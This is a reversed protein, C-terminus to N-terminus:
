KNASLKHLESLLKEATVPLALIRVGTANYIANTIAAMSPNLAPEGIGKAGYPGEPEISEILLPTIKPVDLPGPIEYDLFSPNVLHGNEVVMKEMLTWGLGQVVGGEIQGETAMPNIARGVDHAAVFNVVTIEGTEPDVEVEAIHCGFPYAPSINGYKTVPDPLQTPPIYSGVAILPAGGRSTSAQNAVEKFLIYKEPSGKVFFKGNAAVIDDENAELMDAAVGALQRFAETAASLVGNGGITTGRTAFSGLGFPSVDTDVVAVEIQELSIGLKEAAIQAFATKQGQGMDSEGHYLTVRGDRGVRIIGSGGDFERAFARNGSVHNCCALGIGRFPKKQSRKESWQASEAARTMCERLGNSGIKWGHVSVENPGIANKMRLEIPDMSLEEAIADLSSELAFTSQSNGFGRFCGTPITNTYVTYGKARVHKFRYLSDVRYCATSVIAPGYVTRAGNGGVIKVDKGTLIGDSDVGLKIDIYMPVRPNGALFDDQRPNIVKVPRGSKRALVAAVLHSNNEMKAGFAGGYDPVVIRIDEPAMSLAKAYSMRMMNPIQTGVWLTLRGSIDTQAVAGMPELYAQYVQNTFYRAEYVFHSRKLADDVDGAQISFEAAINGPKDDHVLPADPAMADLPDFVGPIPEYDVTILELAEEAVDEDVAAVAAIEDGEFIAKTNALITWDESRPGFRVAPTDAYTIVSKVGPLAEARSVDINRIRAHPYPSRLIRGYLMRPLTIDSVYRTEGIAKQLADIQPLSKGVVRFESM